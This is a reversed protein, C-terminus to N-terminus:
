RRQVAAPVADTDGAAAAKQSKSTQKALPGNGRRRGALRDRLLDRLRRIARAMGGPAFFLV